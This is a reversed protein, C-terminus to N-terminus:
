AKLVITTAGSKDFGCSTEGKGVYLMVQQSITLHGGTGSHELPHPYSPKILNENYDESSLTKTCNESFINEDYNESILNEDYDESLLNNHREKYNVSQVAQHIRGGNTAIM